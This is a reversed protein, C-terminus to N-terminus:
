FKYTVEGYLYVSDGNGYISREVAGDSVYALYLSIMTNKQVQYDASLDTLTGLNTFGNSPRGTYGFTSNDFAGGGSYWDDKVSALRLQHIESRLTLKKGHSSFEASAFLDKLNSETYFPYRAYLRPTPLIPNFTAHM